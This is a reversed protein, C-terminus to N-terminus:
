TFNMDIDRRAATDKPRTKQQGDSREEFMGTYGKEISYDIAAIARAEGLAECKKLWRSRALPTLTHGKERRHQEWSAAAETFDPSPFPLSGNAREKEKNESLVTSSLITAHEVNTSSSNLPQEVPTSRKNFKRKRARKEASTKGANSLRTRAANARERWEEVWRISLLPEVDTSRWNLKREIRPNAGIEDRISQLTMPGNVGLLRAVRFYCGEDQIDIGTLDTAVIALPVQMYDFARSM